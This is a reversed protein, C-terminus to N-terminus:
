YYYIIYGKEKVHIMKLNEKMDIEMIIIIYEMEKLTGMKGIEKSIIENIEM